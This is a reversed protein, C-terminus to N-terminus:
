AVGAGGGILRCDLGPQAFSDPRLEVGSVALAALLRAAIQEFRGLCCRFTEEFVLGLAGESQLQELVEFLLDHATRDQSPLRPDIPAVALRDPRDIALDTQQRPRM